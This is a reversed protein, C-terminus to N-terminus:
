DGQQRAREAAEHLIEKVPLERVLKRLEPDELAERVKRDGFFRAFRGKRWEDLLEQDTLVARFKENSFLTRLEQRREIGSLAAPQNAVVTLDDILPQLELRTAPSTPRVVYTAFFSAELQDHLAAVRRVRVDEPIADLIGVILWAIALAEIAGFLGGLKKNWPRVDGEEDSGLGKAVMRLILRAVLFLVIWALLACVGYALTSNIDWKAIVYGAALHGVFGSGLSAVVLAGLNALKRLLGKRYSLAAFLLLAVGVVIDIIM